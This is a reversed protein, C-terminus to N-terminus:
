RRGWFRSPYIPNRGRGVRFANWHRNSPKRAPACARVSSEACRESRDEKRGALSEHREDSPDYAYYAGYVPPYLLQGVSYNDLFQPQHPSEATTRTYSYRSRFFSIDEVKGHM